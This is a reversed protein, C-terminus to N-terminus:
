EHSVDHKEHLRGQEGDNCCQKPHNKPRVADV